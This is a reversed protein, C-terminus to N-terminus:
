APPLSRPRPLRADLRALAIAALVVIAPEVPSRYRDFYPIFLVFMASYTGALLTLPWSRADRAALLAGSIALALLALGYAGFRTAYAELKAYALQAAIVPYDRVFQLARDFYMQDRQSENMAEYGPPPAALLAAVEFRHMAIRKNRDSLLDRVSEVPGASTWPVPATTQAAEPMFTAAVAVTGTWALEGAGNRVPTVENFVIYNRITWPAIVAAAILLMAAPRAVAQALSARHFFALAVALAYAYYQTAPVTLVGLGTAVGLAALRRRSPVEVYRVAALLAVTIVCTGLATNNIDAFFSIQLRPHASLLVVAVTGVWPGGFRSAIRYACFLIAVLCVFSLAYAAAFAHEGFLAHAGALLYTYVPDAWATPFFEDPNGAPKDWLWRHNGSFSFGHGDVIARAIYDAEWGEVQPLTRAAYRATRALGLAASAGAVLPPLLASTLWRPRLVRSRYVVWILLPLALQAFHIM